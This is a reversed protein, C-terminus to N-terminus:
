SEVKTFTGESFLMQRTARLVQPKIAALTGKITAGAASRHGGGGFMAAVQAVDLNTNRARWSVKVCEDPQEVFILAVPCEDIASLFNILDADDNGHYRVKKRAGLTLVGWVIQGDRELTGLGEGWYRAAKFSRSVLARYYLEPLDVGKEMLLAAQRFVLPSMNTTRFGLTDTIIGTLLAAAIEQTIELGWHPLSDTLVSATAAADAKVLNLEAYKENTRHHDINITPKGFVHLERHIRGYDACDVAIFTDIEGSVKTQILESGTLHRFASPVGAPLVMQVDKGANRLALGIGLLSGIADGDPRIHGTILIKEAEHLRRRISAETEM